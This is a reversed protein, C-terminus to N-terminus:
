FIKVNNKILRPLIDNELSMKKTIYKFIKKKFFLNGNM